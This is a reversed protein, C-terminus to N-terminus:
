SLEAMLAHANIEALRQIRDKSERKLAENFFNFFGYVSKTKFLTEIDHGSLNRFCHKFHEMNTKLDLEEILQEVCTNYADVYNLESMKM